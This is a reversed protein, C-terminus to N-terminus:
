SARSFLSKALAFGLAIVGYTTLLGIAVPRTRRRYLVALGIALAFVWWVLFLDIAGLFSALFGNEELM